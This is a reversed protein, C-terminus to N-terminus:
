PFPILNIFPYINRGLLAASNNLPTIEQNKQVQFQGAKKKPYVAKINHEYIALISLNMIMIM